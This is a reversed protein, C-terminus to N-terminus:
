LLWSLGDDVPAKPDYVFQITDEAAAIFYILARHM